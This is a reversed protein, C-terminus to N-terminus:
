SALKSFPTGYSGGRKSEKFSIRKLVTDRIAEQYFGKKVGFFVYGKEHLWKAVDKVKPRARTARTYKTLVRGKINKRKATRMPYRTEAIRVIVNKGERVAKISQLMKGTELVPHDFGKAKIWEPSNRQQASGDPRKKEHINQAIRYAVRQGIEYLDKQLLGKDSLNKEFLKNISIKDKDVKLIKGKSLLKLKINLFNDAM